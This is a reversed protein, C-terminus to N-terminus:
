ARKLLRVRNGRDNFAVEDMLARMLLVGRGSPRLLREGDTPDPLAEPDFGGGEDEIVFSAESRSLAVELRVRRQRWPARGRREEALELYADRDQNRLESDLELNGHEAANVLAEELAVAIHMLNGEDWMGLGSLTERLHGILPGFLRRDNDLVFTSRSDVMTQLALSRKRRSEASELLAGVVDTLYQGLLHKPVYSAAGARLAKVVLEESGRATVLVVPLSPMADHVRRVLELGDGESSTLETVILDVEGAGTQELVVDADEAEEVVLDLGSELLARVEARDTASDDVLLVRRKM